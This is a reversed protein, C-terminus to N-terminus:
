EKRLKSPTKRHSRTQSLSRKRQPDVGLLFLTIAAVTKARPRRMLDRLLVMMAIRFNRETRAYKRVSMSRMKQAIRLIRVDNQREAWPVIALEFARWMWLYTKAMSDSVSGKRVVYIGGQGAVLGYRGSAVLRFAFDTDEMYEQKGSSVESRRGRWPGGDIELSAM